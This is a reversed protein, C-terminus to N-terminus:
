DGDTSGIAVLGLDVAVWRGDSSLKYVAAGDLLDRRRAQDPIVLSLSGIRRPLAREDDVPSHWARNPHSHVQVLIARGTGALDRAIRQRESLPVDFYLHGTEQEPILAAEIARATARGLWLVVGEHGDPLATGKERLFRQTEVVVSLPVVIPDEIM